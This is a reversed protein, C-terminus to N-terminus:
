HAIESNKASTLEFAADLEALQAVTLTAPLNDLFHLWQHTTWGSTELAQATRRGELWDARAADVVEFADSQPMVVTDPLGPQDIWANVEALSVKANPKSLVHEHLYARFDDTTVSQFAFKTFYGRLFEDLAERGLRSELFG